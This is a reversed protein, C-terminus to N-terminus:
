GGERSVLGARTLEALFERLDTRLEDEGVEFERGLAVEVEQETPAADLLQWIRAGV